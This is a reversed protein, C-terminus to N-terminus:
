RDNLVFPPQRKVCRFGLHSAPSSPDGKGRTGVMYRTCYENTCLFSGGRQVRKKTQPEAPDFSSNPGEPNTVLGGRADRAYGDARYWDRTWEWVNGAVDYLGFANPQFSGVPATGAYGDKVDNRNPFSGQFTNARSEGMPTLEDGWPYLRGTKGGRAAFEWEAETPLDKDAWRAYALADEFAIHVVPHQELGQLSSGPGQPHKWSAGGVYRWWAVPNNLQVRQEPPTFVLSGAVLLEEAVGPMEAPTPKREAVTVYGTADVFKAFSANTVETADIFYGSLAVRHIPRADDMPEHCHGGATPDASGMSFEGGPIWVMGEPAPSPAPTEDLRTPLFSPQEPPPAQAAVAQRQAAPEEARSCGAVSLAVAVLGASSREFHPLFRAM